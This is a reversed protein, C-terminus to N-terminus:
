KIRQGDMKTNVNVRVVEHNMEISSSCCVFTVIEKDGRPEKHKPGREARGHRRTIRTYHHIPMLRPHQALRLIRSPFSWRQLVSWKNVIDSLSNALADRKQRAHTEKWYVLWTRSKRLLASPIQNARFTMVDPNHRSTKIKEVLIVNGPRWFRAEVDRTVQLRSKSRDLSCTAEEFVLYIGQTAHM